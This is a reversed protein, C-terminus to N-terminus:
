VFWLQYAHLRKVQFANIVVLSVVLLCNVLEDKFMAESVGKIWKENSTFASSLVSMNFFLLRIFNFM